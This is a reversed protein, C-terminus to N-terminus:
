GCYLYFHIISHNFLNFVRKEKNNKIIIIIIIFQKDITNLNILNIKYIEQQLKFYLIFYYVGDDNKFYNIQNFM